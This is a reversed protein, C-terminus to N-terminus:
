TLRDRLVSLESPEIAYAHEPGPYVGSRVDGAWSSVASVAVDRLEAYRRVFKADPGERMGLLDHFVLVQGSTTPGAGIGITPISLRNTLEEGVAAPVCEVVVSFCGAEELAKAESIVKEAAEATKGQAKFGGLATATQPTLGVHGMVPIGAAVIARAREVSTGGGELKVADCKAEKIFRQANAVALENSGEYSGFPMDGVIFPTSAGRRVAAALMVMEDMTIPVTSDHGLVVMAASDGVLILDVGAEEAIRASPHDYATVMVMPEKAAHLEALRSVTVAKRQTPAPTEIPITSM